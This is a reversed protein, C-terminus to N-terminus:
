QIEKKRVKGMESLDLLINYLLYIIMLVSSVLIGGYPIAMSIEMAPSRQKSVIILLKQGWTIVAMFFAMALTNAIIRVCTQIKDPM